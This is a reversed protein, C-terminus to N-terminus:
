KSFIKKCILQNTHLMHTKHLKNFEDIQNKRLNSQNLLKEIENSINDINAKKHVLEPVIKKGSLIVLILEVLLRFNNTWDNYSFNSGLRSSIAVSLIIM